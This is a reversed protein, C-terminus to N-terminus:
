FIKVMDIGLFHDDDINDTILVIQGKNCEETTYM